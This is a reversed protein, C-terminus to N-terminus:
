RRGVSADYVPWFVQGWRSERDNWDRSCRVLEARLEGLVGAHGPDAALNNLEHPDTALDFLQTMNHRGNVVYELLKFRDNKVGRQYQTFAFYLTERTIADPDRLAGAFSQGEVSAPPEIGILECLTPFIDLLYVYGERREGQPIGPGALILPIRVSHEYCNQKGFLGHRGLALGNDGAFVIITNEALGQRELADLVRGLQADLHTIMAYYEAIQRRTDDPTRPFPALKEDRGHLDGNEFPHGGMFNPPLEIADPDYMDRYAQPMTRPDHPALFALYLFFPDGGDYRELYNIAADCFIESSHRGPQIHDCPRETVANSQMPQKVENLVSDYHGTPDYHYAPVNWHDTMGGFFIEDGDQFSRQYAERGNHWKGIGFTRYGAAGLAEGLTTHEAPIREGAGDLHFLTRGTHLMARSPMCVAGSTGCPIHARTFATGRAVLRDMNPTRITPNGLAAITDFRQDDTFFLVINPKQAM